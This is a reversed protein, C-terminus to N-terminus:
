PPADYADFATLRSSRVISRTRAASRIAQRRGVMASSPLTHWAREPQTRPATVRIRQQYVPIRVQWPPDLAELIETSSNRSAGHREPELARARADHNALSTSTGAASQASRACRATTTCSRPLCRPCTASTSSLRLSAVLTGTRPRCPSHLPECGGRAPGSRGGPTQMPTPAAGPAETSRHRNSSRVCTMAAHTVRPHREIEEPAAGLAAKASM